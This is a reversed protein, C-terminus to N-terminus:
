YALGITRSIQQEGFQTKLLIRCVYLGPPCLRNADDRGSWSWIYLSDGERGRGLRRVRRGDLSYIWVEREVEVAGSLSFYIYVQDYIGDGNPTAIRPAISLTALMLEAILPLAYEFRLFSQNSGDTINHEAQFVPLFVADGLRNIQINSGVEVRYDNAMILEFEIKEIDKFSPTAETPQFGNRIHYTLLIADTGKAKLVGDERVGGEIIPEIDQWQGDIWIEELFLVAGEDPSDPSDDSIRIIVVEVPQAVVSSVGLIASLLVIADWRKNYM